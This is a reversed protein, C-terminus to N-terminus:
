IVQYKQNFLIDAQNEIAPYDYGGIFLNELKLFAVQKNTKVQNGKSTKPLSLESWVPSIDELNWVACGDFFFNVYLSQVKNTIAKDSSILQKLRDFKTKELIYGDKDFTRSFCERVKIEAVYQTGGSIFVVDWGDNSESPSFHTITFDNRKQQFAKFCLRERISAKTFSVQKQNITHKM